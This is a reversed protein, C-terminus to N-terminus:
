RLPIRNSQVAPVIQLYRREGDPDKSMSKSIFVIFVAITGKISKNMTQTKFFVAEFEAQRNFGDM